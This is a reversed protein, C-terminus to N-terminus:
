IWGRVSEKYTVPQSTDAPSFLLSMDCSNSSTPSGSSSRWGKITLSKVSELNNTDNGEGPRGSPPRCWSVPISEGIHEIWTSEVLRSEEILLSERLLRGVAGEILMKLYPLHDIM